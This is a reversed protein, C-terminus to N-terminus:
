EIFIEIIELLNIKLLTPYFNVLHHICLHKNLILWEMDHIDIKINLLICYDFLLFYDDTKSTLIIKKDEDKTLSHLTEVFPNVENPDNLMTDFHSLLKMRNNKNSELIIEEMNEM